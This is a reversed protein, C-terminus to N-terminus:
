TLYNGHPLWGAPPDGVDPNERLTVKFPVLSFRLLLSNAPQTPSAPFQVQPEDAAAEPPPSAQRMRFLAVASILFGEEV